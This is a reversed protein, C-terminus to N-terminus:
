LQKVLKRTYIIKKSDRVILVYVGAPISVSPINIYLNGSPKSGQYQYWTRGKMDTLSISLKSVDTTTGLVVNISNRFPNPRVILRDGLTCIETLLFSNTYLTVSTDPTTHQKLRYSIEEEPTGSILVDKYTYNNLKFSDSQGNITAIKIFAANTGIKRELEYRM